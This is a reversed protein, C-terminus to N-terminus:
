IFCFTHNAIVFIHRAHSSEMFSNDYKRAQVEHVNNILGPETEALSADLWSQLEDQSSADWLSMSVAGSPLIMRCKLDPPLARRKVYDQNLLTSKTPRIAHVFDHMFTILTGLAM